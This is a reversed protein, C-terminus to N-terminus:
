NKLLWEVAVEEDHFFKTDHRSSMSMTKDLLFGFNIRNAVIAHKCIRSSNICQLIYLYDQMDFVRSEFEAMKMDILIKVCKNKEALMILESSMKVWLTVDIIGKVRVIIINNLNDHNIEYDM